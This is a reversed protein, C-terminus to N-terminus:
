ESTREDFVRILPRENIIEAPIEETWPQDCRLEQLQFYRSSAMHNGTMRRCRFLRAARIERVIEPDAEIRDTIVIRAGALDIERKLRLPLTSFGSILRRVILKRFLDGIVQFRLLTLNLIRLLVMRAPTMDDHLSRHFEVAIVIRNDSVEILRGAGARRVLWRGRRPLDLLYGADEFSLRWAGEKDRDYLVVSGGLSSAVYLIRDKADGRIVRRHLGASPMDFSTQHARDAAGNNM